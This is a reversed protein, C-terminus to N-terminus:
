HHQAQRARGVRGQPRQVRGREDHCLRRDPQVRVASRQEDEQPCWCCRTLVLTEPCDARQEHVYKFAEYYPSAEAIARTPACLYYIENQDPPCRSVYEDLTTSKETEMQSSDYRLLKALADKNSFDTCIGEKIFQGFDKFFKDFKEPDKNSQQELFRIIRRTLVDKLKLILRSDQM